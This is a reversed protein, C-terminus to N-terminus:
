FARRFFVATMAASVTLIAIRVLGPKMVRGLRAGAYGGLAAAMLMALTQPWWITGSLVFCLTAVSNCASVVLVKLPNYAVVNVTGLLSWVALVMIGVAGGFYGGYVALVFQIVLLPQLGIRVRRRLALGVRGGFAFTLTAILLLWPVIANFAGEPTFLLLLAGVLGGAVSVALLAPLPIGRLGLFHGRYGYLSTLSGPWLAVTSSANAAVAPVGAFLLAPFSVFSGGGAVANMAGALFGAGLLIPLHQVGDM